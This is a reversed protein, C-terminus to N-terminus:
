PPSAVLIFTVIGMKGGYVFSRAAAVPDYGSRSAHLMGRCVLRAPLFLCAWSGRVMTVRESYYGCTVTDMSPIVFKHDRYVPLKYFTFSEGGHDNEITRTRIDQSSQVGVTFSM